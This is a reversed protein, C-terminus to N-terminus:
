QQAPATQGITAGGATQGADAVQNNAWASLFLMSAFVIIMFARM